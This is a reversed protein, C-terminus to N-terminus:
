LQWCVSFTEYLFRRDLSYWLCKGQPYLPLPTFNVVWRYRTNPILIHPATSESWLNENHPAYNLLLYMKMAHYKTLCLSQLHVSACIWTHVSAQICACMCTVRWKYQACTTVDCCLILSPDQVQLTTTVLRAKYEPFVLKSDQSPRVTIISTPGV